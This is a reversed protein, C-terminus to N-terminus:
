SQGGRLMMMAKETIGDRSPLVTYAAKGLPIFSDEATLRQISFHGPYDENLATILEESLSGRRRCEDVILLKKSNGLAAVIKDVHLPVLCRIDLVRVRHGADALQKEAQRSLYYGNGYSIIALEEGDGYVAPEGLEPLPTTVDPYHSLWGADGEQHLDRAMYLAIPELMIVVRQEAAALQVAQRMLLAGDAGNSPCLVIVGPIDRFVAFSNDNHFHGGFGRQYALGAIRIVMPNTYQGDSFFSLTAAEGRIQDEANHVYALFQIEPMAIFGQQAMGIALGLISQEDLVTNLVRNPGFAEMLHQTVHYVGGKKAIDEGCMVISGYQAMLDHLAWNLLKALHQPKGVNHKDWKFLGERRTADPVAPLTSPDKKPPVISRMVDTASTLKPQQAAQNAIRVMRQQQRRIHTVLSESDFLGRAIVAACSHLLPDREADLAIEQKSRYAVEADAGAHGFLRITRLHLIAPKRKQRVYDAAQQAVLYTEALNSGDAFFYKLAPRQSLQQQIWGQPTHTSIGLGNDECVFLLPMPIQQYAAWSASNIAGLATSHNASADGFSCMAIADHPWTGQHQLRKSLGIAFATGMAKPVHSAITSTQPPIHLELSGLVKHRGGSIPDDSSAAFSLLMDYLPTTGPKQKARQLFFAGSRYHLFAPDSVRMAKAVAANAEHGSSGITYFSQGAAQMLRSQLDLLRSALQSDFLEVLDADSLVGGAAQAHPLEQREIRQIFEGLWPHMAAAM